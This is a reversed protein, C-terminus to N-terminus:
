GISTRSHSTPDYGASFKRLQNLVILARSELSIKAIWGPTKLGGYGGVAFATRFDRTFAFANPYPTVAAKGIGSRAVKATYEEVTSLKEAYHTGLAERTQTPPEWPLLRISDADKEHWLDDSSPTIQQRPARFRFGSYGLPPARFGVERTEVAFHSWHPLYNVFHRWSWCTHSAALLTPLHIPLFLLIVSLVDHYFLRSAELYRM